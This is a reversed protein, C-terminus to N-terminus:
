VGESDGGVVELVTLEVRGCATSTFSVCVLGNAVVSLEPSDNMSSFVSVVPGHTAWVGGLFSFAGASGCNGHRNM